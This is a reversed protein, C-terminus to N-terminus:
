LQTSKIHGVWEPISKQRWLLKTVPAHIYCCFIEYSEAINNYRVKLYAPDLPGIGQPMNSAIRKVVRENFRISTISNDLICVGSLDYGEQPKRGARIILGPDQNWVPKHRLKKSM